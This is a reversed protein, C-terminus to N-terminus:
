VDFFVTERPGQVAIDFQYRGAAVRRALLAPQRELPVLGLILDRANAPEDEFYIRTVLRTLIGRGLLGVVIHPAQTGGRPAPVVGPKITTFCFRGGDDTSTGGGCVPLRM